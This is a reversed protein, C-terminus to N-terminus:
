SGRHFPNGIFSEIDSTSFFKERAICRSLIIIKIKRKGERAVYLCWLMAFSLWNVTAMRVPYEMLHHCPDCESSRTQTPTEQSEAVVYLIGM